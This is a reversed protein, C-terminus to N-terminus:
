TSKPRKAMDAAALEELEPEDAEPEELDSIPATALPAAELQELEREDLAVREGLEAEGPEPEDAEPESIEPERWKPLPATELQELEREERGPAGTENVALEELVCRSVCHAPGL